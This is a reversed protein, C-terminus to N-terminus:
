SPLKNLRQSLKTTNPENWSQAVMQGFCLYLINSIFLFATIILFMINGKWHNNLGTVIAGVVLPTALPIIYCILNIIVMVVNAQNPALDITSLLAGTTTGAEIGICSGLTVLYPTLLPLIASCFTSFMLIKAGFCRNLYGPPFQTLIYGWYFSSIIYNKEKGSWDFELFNPNTTSASTM